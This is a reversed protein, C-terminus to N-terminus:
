RGHSSVSTAYAALPGNRTSGAVNTTRAPKPAEPESEELERSLSERTWRVESIRVGILYTRMGILACCVLFAVVSAAFGYIFGAIPVSLFCVLFLPQRSWSRDLDRAEDALRALEAEYMKRQASDM